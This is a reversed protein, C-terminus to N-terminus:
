CNCILCVCVVLVAGSSHADTGWLSDESRASKCFFKNANGKVVASGSYSPMNQM